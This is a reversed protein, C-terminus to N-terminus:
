KRPKEVMGRLSAPAAGIDPHLYVCNLSSLPVFDYEWGRQQKKVAKTLEPSAELAFVRTRVLRMRNEVITSARYDLDDERVTLELSSEAVRIACNLATEGLYPERSPISYTPVKDAPKTRLLLHVKGLDDYRYILLGITDLCKSPTHEEGM